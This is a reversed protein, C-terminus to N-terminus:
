KVYQLCFSDFFWDAVMNTKSDWEAASKMETHLTLHHFHLKDKSFNSWEKRKKTCQLGSYPVRCRCVNPAICKGGRQCPLKCVASILCWVCLVDEACCLMTKRRQRVRSASNNGPSQVPVTYIFAYHLFQFAIGRLKHCPPRWQFIAVTCRTENMSWEGKLIGDNRNHKLARAIESISTEVFHPFLLFEQQFENLNKSGSGHAFLQWVSATAGWLFPM